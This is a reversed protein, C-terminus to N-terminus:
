KKSRKVAAKETAASSARTKLVARKATPKAKPKATKSGAGTAKAAATKRAPRATAPKPVPVSKTFRRGSLTALAAGGGKLSGGMADLGTGVDGLKDGLGRIQVSVNDIGASVEGLARMGRTVPSTINGLLPVRDLIAGLENLVDAVQTLPGTLADLTDAADITLTHVEGSLLSSAQQAGQGALHMSEGADGLLDPLRTILEILENRNNWVLDVVERLKAIDIDPMSGGVVGGLANTADGVIGTAKEFLGM